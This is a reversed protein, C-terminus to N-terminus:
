RVTVTRAPDRPRSGDFRRLRAPDLAGTILPLADPDGTYGIIGCM